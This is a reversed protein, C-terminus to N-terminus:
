TKMSGLNRTQILMKLRQNLKGFLPRVKYYRDNNIVTKGCVHINTFIECFRNRWIAKSVSENHTDLSKSWYLERNYVKFYGNSRRWQELHAWNRTSTPVFTQRCFLRMLWNMMLFNIPPMLHHESRKKWTTLSHNSKRLRHVTM